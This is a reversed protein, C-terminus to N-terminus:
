FGEPNFRKYNVDLFAEVREMTYEAVPFSDLRSWSTLAITDEELESYPAMVLNGGRELVYAELEDIVQQDDTNYWLVVGAHEM